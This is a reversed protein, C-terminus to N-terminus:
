RLRGTRLALAFGPALPLRPVLLAQFVHYADPKGSWTASAPHNDPDLEHHWSGREDDALHTAIFDWVREYWREYADDGTAAHLAAAAAAAEAHVWHFRDRVVARGDRDTTYVFGGHAEWGDAVARAFLARAAELLWGPADGLTADLHCLLRSWELGHGPTVGYPRFPHRPADENYDHLPRWAADYHEPLRWGNARASGDILKTAVALARAHWVPDGTADGAALFAETMHMNANAGRYPDLTTWARDWEEVAAGEEESWFRQSVTRAAAECLERGGPRGALTASAGALLVFAHEYAAKSDDVPGSGDPALATFWGDDHPDRFGAALSRVGHDARDADGDRGLLAGLAFLHTMRCAIWLPRPRSRDPRSDDGLWHFGPGDADSRAAVDLLRHAEASQWDPGADPGDQPLAALLRDLADEPM